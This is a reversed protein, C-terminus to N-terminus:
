VGLNVNFLKNEKNIKNTISLEQDIFKRIKLVHEKQVNIDLEFEKDCELVLIPLSEISDSIGKRKILWDEHRNHISQLYEIPVNKEEFRNRKSIREFCTKPNTKLYIFGNPKPTYKESLWEFWEKYIAWELETMLGSEFCNKAFCYRDCYISRELFQPKEIKNKEQYEMITQVRSIFAYSQFTYAWRKTDKYFLDLLNDNDNINQWKDAPEFIISVDLHKKLMKLFISKGAGINGEVMIIPSLSAQIYNHKNQTTKTSKKASTINSPQKVM